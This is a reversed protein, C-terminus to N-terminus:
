ASFGGSFASHDATIENFFTLMIESASISKARARFPLPDDFLAL